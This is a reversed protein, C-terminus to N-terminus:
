REESPHSVSVNMEGDGEGVTREKVHVSYTRETGLLNNNLPANIIKKKM